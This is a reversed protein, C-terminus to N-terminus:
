VVRENDLWRLEEEGEAAKVEKEHRRKVLRLM